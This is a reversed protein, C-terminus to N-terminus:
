PQSAPAHIAHCLVPLDVSAALNPARDYLYGEEGLMAPKAGQAIMCVCPNHVGHHMQTPASARSLTLTRVATSRLGEVGDTFRTILAAMEALASELRLDQTTM